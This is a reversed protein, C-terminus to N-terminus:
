NYEVFTNLICIPVDVNASYVTTCSSLTALTSLAAGSSLIQRSPQPTVVPMPATVLVAM